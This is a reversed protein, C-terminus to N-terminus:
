SSWTMKSLLSISVVRGELKLLWSSDSSQFTAFVKKKTSSLCSHCSALQTLLLSALLSGQSRHESHCSMAVPQMCGGQQSPTSQEMRSGGPWPTPTSCVSSDIAGCWPVSHRHISLLKLVANPSLGGTTRNNFNYSSLAQSSQSIRFFSVFLCFSFFFLTPPTLSVLPRQLHQRIWKTGLNRKSNLRIWSLLCLCWVQTLPLFQQYDSKTIDIM